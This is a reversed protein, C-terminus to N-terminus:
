ASLRRIVLRTGLTIGALLLATMVRGYDPKYRKTRHLIKEPERVISALASLKRRARDPLSRYRRANRIKVLTVVAVLAVVGVGAGILPARHERLRAKVDFKHQVRHSLETAILEAKERLAVIERQLADAETM